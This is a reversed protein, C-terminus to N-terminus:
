AGLKLRKTEKRIDALGQSTVSENDSDAGAAASSSPDAAATKSRSPAGTAAAHEEDGGGGGMEEDEMELLQRKRASTPSPPPPTSREGEKNNSTEETADAMSVDGEAAAAAAATPTAPAAVSDAAAKSLMRDLKVQYARLPEWEKGERVVITWNELQSRLYEQTKKVEAAEIYIGFLLHGLVEFFGTMKAVMEENDLSAFGAMKEVAYRIGQRQAEWILRPAVSARKTKMFGPPTIVSSLMKALAVSTAQLSSPSLISRTPRNMVGEYSEKLSDVVVESMFAEMKRLRESAYQGEMAGQKIATVVRKVGEDYESGFRGYQSVVAAAHKMDLDKLMLQRMYSLVTGFMEYKDGSGVLNGQDADLLAAKEIEDEAEADSLPEDFNTTIASKENKKGSSPGEGGNNDGQEDVEMDTELSYASKSRAQRLKAKHERLKGEWLELESRVFQECGEQTQEDCRLWLSHRQAGQSVHFMDSGFLWYLDGMTQFAKRRVKADITRAMEGSLTMQQLMRMLGDRMEKMETAEAETWDGSDQSHRSLLGRCLWSIWLFSISMASMVMEAVTDKDLQSSSSSAQSGIEIVRLLGDFTQRQIAGSKNATMDLHKVLQEFRAVAASLGHMAENDGDGAAELHKQDAGPCVILFQDLVWTCLKQFPEENAARLMEYEQMKRLTRAAISLVSPHVHKQYVKIVEAVLEEYATMMRLDVYVNLSLMQPIALVCQIGNEDVGYKVFLQPLAHVLYRGVENAAEAQQAEMKAKDRQFGFVVPPKLTLQISAVLVELLVAEEEDELRYDAALSSAGFDSVSSSSPSSAATLTAAAKAREGSTHDQLLYETITKWQKLIEMDSWLAEVALAVRGTKAEDIMRVKAEKAQEEHAAAALQQGVKVFFSALSKLEIWDKRVEAPAEASSSGSGSRAATAHMECQAMRKAVEDEAVRGHIFKALARRVKPQTCFIMSAMRQQDEVELQGHQDALTLLRIAALRVNLDADGLALGVLREMFRTMTPRLTSAHHQHQDLEYLKSLAKLSETRVASARDTVLWGVYRLYSASLFQDPYKAMWLGLERVCEVRVLPDVDRCRMVFVSVFIDDIWKLIMMRHKQADNVTKRLQGAKATSAKNKQAAALQRSATNLDNVLEAAIEVLCTAMHLAVVSATHRFPRFTTSSLSITWALLTSMLKGDGDDYLFGAQAQAKRILRTYFELLNKRFKKYEKLKSVLPYDFNTTTEKYRVLVDELTEVMRDQDALDDATLMQTCGCSRILLNVLDLLAEQPSEEYKECWQTVEMDLAVQGSIIADYLASEGGADEDAQGVPRFAKSTKKAKGTKSSIRRPEDGTDDNSWGKPRHIQIRDIKQRGGRRGKGKSSAGDKKAAAAKPKRTAEEFDSDDGDDEEDEYEEVEEEEEESSSSSSSDNEDDEDEEDEDEEEEDENEEVREETSEESSEEGDEPAAKRSKTTAPKGKGRTGAPSKGSATKQLTMLSAIPSIANVARDDRRIAQAQNGSSDWEYMGVQVRYMIDKNLADMAKKVTGYSVAMGFTSLFAHLRKPCKAHYLYMGMQMQFANSQQSSTFILMAAMCARLKRRRRAMWDKRVLDKIEKPEKTTAASTTTATTTATDNAAATPTTETVATGSATTATTAGPAAASDGDNDDAGQILGKLLRMVTNSEQLYSEISAMKGLNGQDKGLLSPETISHAKFHFAKSNKIRRLDRWSRNVAVRLASDVFLIDAQDLAHRRTEVKRRLQDEWLNVMNSAGNQRLFHRTRRRFDKDPSSFLEQLFDNLSLGLEAFLKFVMRVKEATDIKSARKRFTSGLVKWVQDLSEAGPNLLLEELAKGDNLLEGRRHHPAKTGKEARARKVASSMAYNEPLSNVFKRTAIGQDESPVDSQQTLDITRPAPSVPDVAVPEPAVYVPIPAPPPALETRPPPRPGGLSLLVEAAETTTSITEQTPRPPPPEPKNFRIVSM